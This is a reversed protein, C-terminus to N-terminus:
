IRSKVRKRSAFRRGGRGKFHLMNDSKIAQQISAPAPSKCSGKSELLSPASNKMLLSSILAIGHLRKPRAYRRRSSHDDGYVCCISTNQQSTYPVPGGAIFPAPSTM